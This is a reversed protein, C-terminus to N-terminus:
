STDMGNNQDDMAQDFDGWAVDEETAPKYVNRVINKPAETIGRTRMLFARDEEKDQKEYKALIAAEMIPGTFHKRWPATGPTNFRKLRYRRKRAANQELQRLRSISAAPGQNGFKASGGSTTQWGDRIVSQRAIEESDFEEYGAADYFVEQIKDDIDLADDDEKEEPDDQMPPLNDFDFQVPPWQPLTSFTFRDEVGLLAMEWSSLKRDSTPQYRQVEEGYGYGFTSFRVNKIAHGDEM